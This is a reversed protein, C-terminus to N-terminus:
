PAYTLSEACLYFATFHIFFNIVNSAKTLKVVIPQAPVDRFAVVSRISWAPLIRCSIMAAGSL